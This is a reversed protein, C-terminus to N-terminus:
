LRDESSTWSPLYRTLPPHSFRGENAFDIDTSAVGGFVIFKVVSISAAADGNPGEGGGGKGGPTRSRDERSNMESSERYVANRSSPIEQRGWGVLTPCVWSTILMTSTDASCSGSFNALNGWKFINFSHALTRVSDTYMLPFTLGRALADLAASLRVCRIELELYDCRLFKVFRHPLLSLLFMFLFM